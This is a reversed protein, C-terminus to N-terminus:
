QQVEKLRKKALDLEKKPTKQSKKIFSHLIIIERGKATCYLSRGIGEKGKSRIEYLGSGMTGVYPKGLNPGLEEIMEAIHLFNALIGPPFNLTETEVKPNYFTIKWNM